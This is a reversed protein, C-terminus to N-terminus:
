TAAGAVLAVTPPAVYLKKWAQSACLQKSLLISTPNEASPLRAKPTNTSPSLGGRQNPPGSASICAASEFAM